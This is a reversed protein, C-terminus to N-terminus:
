RRLSVGVSSLTGLRATTREIKRSDDVIPQLRSPKLGPKSHVRGARQDQLSTMAATTRIERCRDRCIRGAVTALPLVTRGTTQHLSARGRATIKPATVWVGRALIRSAAKRDVRLHGGMHLDLQGAAGKRLRCTACELTLTRGQVVCTPPMNRVGRTIRTALEM